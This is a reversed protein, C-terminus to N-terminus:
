CKISDIRWMLIDIENIQKNTQKNEDSLQVTLLDLHNQSSTTPGDDLWCCHHQQQDNKKKERVRKWKNSYTMMEKTFPLWFRGRKDVKSYLLDDFGFSLWAFYELASFCEKKRFKWIKVSSHACIVIIADSIADRNLIGFDM